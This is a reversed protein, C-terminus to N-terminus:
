EQLLAMFFSPSVDSISQRADVLAGRDPCSRFLFPGYRELLELVWLCM